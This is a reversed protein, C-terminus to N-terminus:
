LKSGTYAVAVGRRPTETLSSGLLKDIGVIALVELDFVGGHIVSAGVGSLIQGGQRISIM